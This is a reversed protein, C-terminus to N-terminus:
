KPHGAQFEKLLTKVEADVNDVKSLSKREYVEVYRDNRNIVIVGDSVIMQNKSPAFGVTNTLSASDVPRTTSVTDVVVDNRDAISDSSRKIKKPKSVRKNTRSLIRYLKRIVVFYMAWVWYKRLIAFFVPFVSRSLQSLSWYQFHSRFASLAAPLQDSVVESYLSM